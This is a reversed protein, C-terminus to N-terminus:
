EEEGTAELRKDHARLRNGLNMRQMGANLKSYREVLSQVSVGLTKEAQSYLDGLDVNRLSKALQDGCDLSGNGNTTLVRVYHSVNHEVGRIKHMRPQSPDRAVRRRATVKAPTSAAVPAKARPKGADSRQKRGTASLTISPTVTGATTPAPCRASAARIRAIAASAAHVETNTM